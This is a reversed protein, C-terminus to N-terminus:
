LYIPISLERGEPVETQLFSHIEPIHLHFMEKEGGLYSLLSSRGRRLKLGLPESVCRAFPFICMKTLYSGFKLFMEMEFESKRGHVYEETVLSQPM